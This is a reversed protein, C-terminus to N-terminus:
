ADSMIIFMWESADFKDSALACLLTHPWKKMPHFGSGVFGIFNFPANKVGLTAIGAPNRRIGASEPLIGNRCGKERSEPELEPGSDQSQIKKYTYNQLFLGFNQLNM